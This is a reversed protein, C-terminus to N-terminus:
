EAPETEAVFLGMSKGIEMPGDALREAAAEAFAEVGEPGVSELSATHAVLPEPDPVRLYTEREHRRMENFHDALQEAGNELTFQGIDSPEWATTAARLERLAAANSEGNATAYLRGGPRLVRRIEPLAADRDVHYLMHNAVVADVSDDPLPVSEAAATGFEAAVGAGALTERADAVMGPSFDTLLLDWGAPVRDANERWLDGTGCGVELVDADAPLDYRDFVWPWWDRDAVEYNEHLAIRAELNAGDAYQEALAARDDTM